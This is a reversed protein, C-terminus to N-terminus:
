DSNQKVLDALAKEDTEISEDGRFVSYEVRDVFFEVEVRIGVLAFTVMIAGPRQQDLSYDVRKEQLLELFTLLRQLGDKQMKM